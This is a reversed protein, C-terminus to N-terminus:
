RGFDLSTIHQATGHGAAWAMGTCAGVTRWIGECLKMGKM